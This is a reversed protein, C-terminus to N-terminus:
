KLLYSIFGLNGDRNAHEEVVGNPWRSQIYPLRDAVDPYIVWVAKSAPCDSLQDSAADVPVDVLHRPGALFEIEFIHLHYSTAIDCATFDLPLSGLFRGIRSPVLGNHGTTAYYLQWEHQGLYAFFLAAACVLVAASRRRPIVASVASVLAQGLEVLALGIFAGAFPLLIVLRPWSPAGAVLFSGFALTLVWSALMFFAAPRRWGRLASAVGLFFFPSILSNLMPHEYVFHSSTNTFYHMAFLSRNFQALIMDGASNVGLGQQTREMVGPAFIFLQQARSTFDSFHQGYYVLDPGMTALLLVGLWTLGALNGTLWARRFFFCYALFLAAIPGIIRGSNYNLVALATLVGAVAFSVTRRSRLGDVFLWLAFVAYFVPFIVNSRSFHIHAANTAVVTMAVAAIWHHDFLRWVLLYIGVLSLIGAVTHAMHFGLDNDGLVTMSVAYPIIGLWSIGQFADGFIGTQAGSILDRARLGEIAVDPHMDEPVSRLMYCRLFAGVFFIILLVTTSQWTFRPSGAGAASSRIGCILLLSLLAGAVGVLWLGRVLGSEESGAYIIIALGSCILSGSLIAKWLRPAPKVGSMPPAAPEPAHRPESIALYGGVGWLFMAIVYGVGAVALRTTEPLQIIQYALNPLITEGARVGLLFFQAVYAFGFALGAMSLAALRRAVSQTSPIVLPEATVVRARRTSDPLHSATVRFTREPQPTSIRPPFEPEPGARPSLVSTTTALAASESNPPPGPESVQRGAETSAPRPWRKLIFTLSTTVVLTSGALQLLAIFRKRDRWHALAEAFFALAALVGFLASTEPLDLGYQGKSRSPNPVQSM